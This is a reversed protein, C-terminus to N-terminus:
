EVIIGNERLTAVFRSADVEATKEDVDYEACLAAILAREDAGAELARWLLEGTENLRVMAGADEPRVSVAFATDAIKRVLYGDRIKM